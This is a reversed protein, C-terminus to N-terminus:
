IRDNLFDNVQQSGYRKVYYEFARIDHRAAHRLFESASVASVFGKPVITRSLNEFGPYRPVNSKRSEALAQRIEAATFKSLEEKNVMEALRDILQVRTLLGLRKREQEPNAYQRAVLIADILKPREDTWDLTLGDPKHNVLWDIKVMSLEGGCWDSIVRYNAQHSGFAYKTIAERWVAANKAARDESAARELESLAQTRYNIETM